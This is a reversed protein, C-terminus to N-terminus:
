FSGFFILHPEAPALTIQSDVPTKKLVSVASACKFPPALFTIKDAGGFSWVGINTIPTLWSYYLDSRFMIEHADQVVFQKAGNALTTWSLYLM